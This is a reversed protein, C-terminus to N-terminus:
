CDNSVSYGKVKDNKSKIWNHLDHIYINEETNELKNFDNYSILNIGVIGYMYARERMAITDECVLIANEKKVRELLTRTKGTGKGGSIVFM